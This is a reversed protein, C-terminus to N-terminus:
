RQEDREGVPVGSRLSRLGKPEGSFWFWQADTGGQGLIFQWFTLSALVLSMVLALVAISGAAAYLLVTDLPLKPAFQRGIYGALAALLLFALALKGILIRNLKGFIM